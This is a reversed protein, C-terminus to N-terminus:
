QWRQRSVIRNLNNRCSVQQLKPRGDHSKSAFCPRDGRELVVLVIRLLQVPGVVGITVTVHLPEASGVAQVDAKDALVAPFM